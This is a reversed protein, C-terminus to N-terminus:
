KSQSSPPAGFPDSARTEPKTSSSGLFAFPDNNNKNATAAGGLIDGGGGAGSSVGAFLDTGKDNSSSGFM